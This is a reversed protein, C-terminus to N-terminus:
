CLAVDSWFAQTQNIVDKNQEREQQESGLIMEVYRPLLAYHLYFSKWPEPGRMEHHWAASLRNRLSEM